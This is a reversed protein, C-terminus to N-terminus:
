IGINCNENRVRHRLIHVLKTESTANPYRLATVHGSEHQRQPESQRFHRLRLACDCALIVTYLHQEIVHSTWLKPGADLCDRAAEDFHPIIEFFLLARYASM